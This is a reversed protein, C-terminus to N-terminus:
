ARPVADEHCGVFEAVEFATLLRIPLGDTVVPAATLPGATTATHASEDYIRDQGQARFLDDRWANAVATPPM